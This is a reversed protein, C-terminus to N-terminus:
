TVAVTIEIVDVCVTKFSTVSYTHSNTVSIFSLTNSQRVSCAEEPSLQLSKQEGYVDNAV